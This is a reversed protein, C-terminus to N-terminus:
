TRLNFDEAIKRLAQPFPCAGIKRRPPKRNATVRGSDRFLQLVHEELLEMRRVNGQHVSREVDPDFPLIRYARLKVSGNALYNEVAQRTSKSVAGNETDPSVGLLDTEIFRYVQNQTSSEGEEFHGALRRFPPRATVYNRDGTQGIYFFPDKEGRVEVVYLFYARRFQEGGLTLSVVSPDEEEDGHM